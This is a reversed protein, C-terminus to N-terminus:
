SGVPHVLVATAGSPLEIVEEAFGGAPASNLTGQAQLLAREEPSCWRMRKTAHQRVLRRWQRSPMREPRPMDVTWPLVEVPPTLAAVARRVSRASFGTTEVIALVQWPALPFPPRRYRLSQRFSRLASDYGM